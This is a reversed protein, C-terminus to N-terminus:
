SCIKHYKWQRKMHRQIISISSFTPLYMTLVCLKNLNEKPLASIISEVTRRWHILEKTALVSDPKTELHEPRLVKEM